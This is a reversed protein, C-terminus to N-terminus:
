RVSDCAVHETLIQHWALGFILPVHKRVGSCVCVPILSREGLLVIYGFCRLGRRAVPCHADMANISVAVRGFGEM